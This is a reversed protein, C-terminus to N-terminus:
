VLAKIERTEEYPLRVWFRFLHQAVERLIDINQLIIAPNEAANHVIDNRIKYLENIKIRVVQPKSSQTHAILAQSIAGDKHGKLRIGRVRAGPQGLFECCEWLDCYIDVADSEMAASNLRRAAISLRQLDEMSATALYARYETLANVLDDITIQKRPSVMLNITQPQEMQYGGDDMGFLTQRDDVAVLFEALRISLFSVGVELVTESFARLLGV